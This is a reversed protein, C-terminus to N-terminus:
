RADSGGHVSPAREIGFLLGNAAAFPTDYHVDRVAPWDTEIWQNDRSIRKCFYESTFHLRGDELFTPIHSHYGIPLTVALCGGPALLSRLHEIARLLKEPERPIEDWGVHEITSISVILDYRSTSPIDMVDQNIVGRGVEYKDIVTHTIPGYHALVNGVELIRKGAYEHLLAHTWPLEVAREVAWSANYEARCYSYVVGGIMFESPGIGMRCLVYSVLFQLAVRLGRSHAYAGLWYMLTFLRRM